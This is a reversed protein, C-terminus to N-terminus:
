KSHWILLSYFTDNSKISTIGHPINTDLYYLDGENMIVRKKGHLIDGGDISKQLIINTNITQANYATFDKHETVWGHNYIKVFCSKEHRFIFDSYQSKFDKIIKELILNFKESKINKLYCIGVNTGYAEDVYNQQKALKLLYLRSENDLYSKVLM